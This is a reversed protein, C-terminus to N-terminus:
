ARKNQIWAVVLLVLGAVAAVAGRLAHGGGHSSNIFGPTLGATWLIAVILALLGLLALALVLPKRGTGDAPNEASM